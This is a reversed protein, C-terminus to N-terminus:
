DEGAETVTVLFRKGNEFTIVVRNDDETDAAKVAPFLVCDDDEAELNSNNCIADLLADRFDNMNM